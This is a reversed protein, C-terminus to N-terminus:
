SDHPVILHARAQHRSGPAARYDRQGIAGGDIHGGAEPVKALV